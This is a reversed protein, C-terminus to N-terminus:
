LLCPTHCFIITNRRRPILRRLLWAAAAVLTGAYDIRKPFPAKGTQQTSRWAAVAPGASDGTEAVDHAQDHRQLQEGPHARASMM